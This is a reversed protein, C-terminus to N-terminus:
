QSSIGYRHRQGDHGGYSTDSIILIDFGYKNCIHMMNRSQAEKTNTAGGVDAM